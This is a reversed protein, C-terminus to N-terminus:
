MVRTRKVLPRPLSRSYSRISLSRKRSDPKALTERKSKSVAEEPSKRANEKAEEIRRELMDRMLPSLDEDQIDTLLQTLNEAATIELQELQKREDALPPINKLYDQVNISPLGSVYDSLDIGCTQLLDMAVALVTDNSAENLSEIEKKLQPILVVNKIQYAAKKVAPLFVTQQRANMNLNRFVADYKEQFVDKGLIMALLAISQVIACVRGGAVKQDLLTGTTALFTNVFIAGFEGAKSEAIKNSVCLHGIYTQLKPISLENKELLIDDTSQNSFVHRVFSQLLFPHKIASTEAEVKEALVQNWHNYLQAKTPAERLAPGKIGVGAKEQALQILNTNTAHILQTIVAFQYLEPAEKLHKNAYACIPQLKEAHIIDLRTKVWKEKNPFMKKIAASIFVADTRKGDYIESLVSKTSTVATELQNRDPNYHVFGTDSKTQNCCRHAWDYELKLERENNKSKPNYLSLFLNGHFVPLVHECEPTANHDEKVALGCIYCITDPTWPGIVNRCQTKADTPEWWDRAHAYHDNSSSVGASDVFTVHPDIQYLLEFADKARLGCFDRFNHRRKTVVAAKADQVNTVNVIDAWNIPHTTKNKKKRSFKAPKYVKRIRYLTM